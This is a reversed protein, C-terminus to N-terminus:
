VEQDIQLPTIVEAEQLWNKDASCSHGVIGVIKQAYIEFYTFSM